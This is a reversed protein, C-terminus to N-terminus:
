EREREEEGRAGREGAASCAGQAGARWSDRGQRRGAVGLARGAREVGVRRARCRGSGARGGRGAGQVSGLLALVRGRGLSAAGLVRTPRPARHAVGVSGAGLLRAV